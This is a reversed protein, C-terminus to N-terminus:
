VSSEGVNKVTNPTFKESKKKLWGDPTEEYEVETTGERSWRAYGFGGPRIEVDDLHVGPMEERACDKCLHTIWGDSQWILRTGSEDRPETGCKSCIFRSLTEAIFELEGEHSNYIRLTGYKEKVDRFVFAKKIDEEQKDYWEFLRPLYRKKWLEEWGSCDWVKYWNHKVNDEDSSYLDSLDSMIRKYKLFPYKKILDLMETDSVPFKPDKM